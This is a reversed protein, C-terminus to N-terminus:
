LLVSLNTKRSKTQNEFPLGSLVEYYFPVGLFQKINRGSDKAQIAVDRHKPNQHYNKEFKRHPFGKLVRTCGIQLAPYGRCLKHKTSWFASNYDTTIKARWAAGSGEAALISIRSKVSSCCCNLLSNIM